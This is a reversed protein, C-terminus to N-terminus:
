QLYIYQRAGSPRDVEGCNAESYGECYALEKVAGHQRRYVLLVSGLTEPRNVERQEKSSVIQLSKM